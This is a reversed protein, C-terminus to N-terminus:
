SVKKKGTLEDKLLLVFSICGALGFGGSAGRLIDFLLPNKPAPVLLVIAFLLISVALLLITRTVQNKM